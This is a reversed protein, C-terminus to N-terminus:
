LKLKRLKPADAHAPRAGVSSLSTRNRLSNRGLLVFCAALILCGVVVVTIILPLGFASGDSSPAAAVPAASNTSNPPPAGATRPASTQKAPPSPSPPPPLPPAMQALPASPPPSSIDVPTAPIPPSPSGPTGPGTLFTVARVGSTTPTKDKPAALINQSLPRISQTALLHRRRSVPTGSMLSECAPDTSPTTALTGLASPVDTCVRGSTSAPYAPVYYRLADSAGMDVGLISVPPSIIGSVSATDRLASAMDTYVPFTNRVRLQGYPQAVTIVCFSISYGSLTTKGLFFRNRAPMGFGGTSDPVVAVGLGRNRYTLPMIDGQMSAIDSFSNKTLVDMLKAHLEPSIGDTVNYFPDAGGGITWLATDVLADPESDFGGDISSSVIRSADTIAWATVLDERDLGCFTADLPDDPSITRSMEPPPDGTHAVMLILEPRVRWLKRDDTNNIQVTLAFAQIIILTHRSSYMFAITYM